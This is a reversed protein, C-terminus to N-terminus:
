REGGKKQPTNASNLSKREPRKVTDAGEVKTERGAAENTTDSVEVKKRRRHPTFLKLVTDAKRTVVFGLGTETIEGELISQFGTHRFLRASMNLTPSQRMIYEFSIDSILNQSLNEDPSSDTSYNGGVLIKFRNNFLNKSVQYSYSTENTQVGDNGKDYQDIGFSIDVGKITKAAWANLQSELFSYLMNGGLNANAKTNQGTYQGYLFLNMAQTQRQDASMSQLENQVTIDDNTSLDFSVTPTNLNGGVNLTVQFNALRSNGGSSVNAKMNDYGTIHFSPNMVDGGWTVTSAPDFTFMKEGILDINYKAFGTGLTVTGNLRMDGMYNQFYNLTGTPHLQVEGTGNVNMIATAKMGPQLTLAAKVRMAMGSAITDAHVVASTDNFNVFKVVGGDSIGALDSAANSLRYTVDSTGLVNINGEVDLLRLNGRVRANVDAFLKGYVDGKSRRDSKILQCNAGKMELNMRVNSFSTADVVGNVTIPNYNSGFIRFNDFDVVNNVVRIPVTDLSVASSVMSVVGRANNFALFGNLQPAKFSGDMRLNGNLTGSLTAMDALFPNAVKLPFELFQLGLSDPKLGDISDPRMNAYARLAPKDDIRLAATVDSSGDKALGANLDVLFDGLRTREYTLRKVGLTGKGSLSSGDYFIHMDTSLAGTMPPATTLKLFDQIYINDLKVLLEELGQENPQTRLLISSEDSQAILNANIKKNYVNFDIYNDDNLEWPLYAITANLPTFHVTAVSDAMAATLGIRYGVEGSINRQTLFAGVRNQGVYGNLDVRAFEDMNGSRNGVHIKYDMLNRREALQLSITDLNVSKTTLRTAEIKGAILSDKYLNGHITDLTVGMPQLFQGLLGRGSVNMALNFRPLMGSLDDVKINREKIQRALLGSVKTLSDILPKMGSQARFDFCTLRSDVDLRTTGPTSILLASIGEPINLSRDPLEWNLQSVSLRANYLWKSPEAVGKVSVIGRGFSLDNSFGLQQLDLDRVDARLDVDYKDKEVRGSGSLLFDLGPNSSSADINLAGDPDLKVRAQLNNFERHNYVIRRIDIDANTVSHGSAPNFGTGHARVTGDVIGVGLSPFIRALNLNRIAADVSYRESNLGVSGKGAVDGASTLLSFEAGYNEHFATATGSIRFAPVHLGSEGTFRSILRPDEVRGSFAVKADMLKINLPNRAYGKGKVEGVGRLSLMFRGIDLSRLSGDGKVSLDIPNRAPLLRTYKRMDPMAAEVDPLGIRCDMDVSMEANRDMQMLAMPVDVAGAIRSYPTRINVNKASIGISDIDIEGSGSVIQLGSRERAELRTIPLRVTSAENYFNHMGLTIGSLQMYQPDIGPKPKAGAVGYLMSFNSLGVTDGEIVMPPGSEPNEPVPPFKRAPDPTLYVGSGGSATISKWNVRNAGLDIIGKELNLTDVEMGMREITPLMYLNFRFNELKLHNASVVFPPAQSATSDQPEYKKKWPDMIVTVDGNRLLADNLNIRSKAIDAWSRGDVDLLGARLRLTMSSDPAVMKYFGQELRLKNLKVESDLLPKVRVDAVASRVMAMTDGTNTFVKVDRLDLDLPFRLRIGGVEVKMGTSKALYSCAADTLWRQVPPMYILVPILVILTLLSGLTWRGARFWLIAAVVAGASDAPFDMMDFSRGLGMWGQAFEVLLGIASSLLAAAPIFLRPVRQTWDRRKRDLLLMLTLGGFMIAHVVKDAGPFLPIDVDGVPEPALTLWLIAVLTAISLSWGPLKSLWKKM